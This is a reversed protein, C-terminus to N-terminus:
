AVGGVEKLLVGWGRGRFDVSVSVLKFWVGRGCSRSEDRGEAWSKGGSTWLAGSVGHHINVRDVEGGVVM